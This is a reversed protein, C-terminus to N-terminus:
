LLYFDMDKEEFDTLHEKNYEEIVMSPIYTEGSIEFKGRRWCSRSRIWM